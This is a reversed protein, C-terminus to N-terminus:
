FLCWLTTGVRSPIYSHHVYYVLLCILFLMCIGYIPFNENNFYKRSHWWIRFNIECFLKHISLFASLNHYRVRTAVERATKSNEVISKWASELCFVKEFYQEFPYFLELHPAACQATLVRHSLASWIPLYVLGHHTWLLESSAPDAHKHFFPLCLLTLTM